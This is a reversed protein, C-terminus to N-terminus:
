KLAATCHVVTSSGITTRTCAYSWSSGSLSAGYSSALGMWDTRDNPNTFIYEQSGGNNTLEDINEPISNGSADVSSGKLYVWKRTDWNLTYIARSGDPFRVHATIPVSQGGVLLRLANNWSYLSYLAGAATSPLYNAVTNRDASSRVISYANISNSNDNSMVPINASGTWSNGNNSYLELAEAYQNIVWDPPTSSLTTCRPPVSPEYTCSVQHSTISQGSLNYIYHTGDGLDRANTRMQTASCGDCPHAVIDSAINQGFPLLLLLLTLLRVTKESKTCPREQLQITEHAQIM